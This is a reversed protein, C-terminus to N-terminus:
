GNTKKGSTDVVELWEQISTQCSQFCVSYLNIDHVHTIIWGTYVTKRCFPQGKHTLSSCEQLFKSSTDNPSIGECEPNEASNCEFCKICLAPPLNLCIMSCRFQWERRVQQYYLVRLLLLSLVVIQYLWKTSLIFIQISSINFTQQKWLIRLQHHNYQVLFNARPGVPKWHLWFM